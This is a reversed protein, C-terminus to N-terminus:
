NTMKVLSTMSYREEGGRNFEITQAEAFGHIIAITDKLVEDITGIKWLRASWLGDGEDDRWLLDSAVGKAEMWEEIPRNLFLCPRVGGQFPTKFDDKIGYAVAAWRGDGVQLAVIGIGFPLAISSIGCEPLGTVINEGDLFLTGKFGVNEVLAFGQAEVIVDPSNFVFAGCGRIGDDIRRGKAFGYRSALLNDGAFGRILEMSSGIHFFDCRSAVNVRFGMGHVKGYVARLANVYGEQQSRQSFRGIYAGEDVDPLAAMLFEEYLDMQHCRGSAVEDLFESSALEEIKRCAAGSLAVLGTDVAVCDNSNIAGSSSATARNPKQLFGAVGQCSSVQSLDEPIYVGHRSGREVSDYYAVGTIDGRSFDMRALDEAEFTPVVDGSAILVGSAIPLQLCNRLILDFLALPEGNEARCPVPTFVKGVAAYAPTRRSDGGSHCILIKAGGEIYSNLQRLVNLTAYFSGIRRGGLDSVVLIETTKKLIGVRRRWELARRYGRAQSENAATLVIVDFESVSSNKDHIEDM